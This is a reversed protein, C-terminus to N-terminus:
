YVMMLNKIKGMKVQPTRARPTRIEGSSDTCTTRIISHIQNTTLSTQKRKIYNGTYSTLCYNSKLYKIRQEFKNHITYHM